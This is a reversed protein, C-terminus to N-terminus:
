IVPGLCLQRHKTAGCDLTTPPYAGDDKGVIEDPLKLVDPPADAARHAAQPSQHSTASQISNGDDANMLPTRCGRQRKKISAQITVLEKELVCQMYIGRTWLYSMTPMAFHTPNRASGRSTPSGDCLQGDPSCRHTSPRALKSFLFGPDSAMTLEILFTNLLSRGFDMLEDTPDQVGELAGIWEVLNDFARKVQEDDQQWCQYACLLDFVIRRSCCWQPCSSAFNRWAASLEPNNPTWHTCVCVYMSPSHRQSGGNM